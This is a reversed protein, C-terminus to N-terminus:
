SPQKFHTKCKAIWCKQKIYFTTCYTFFTCVPEFSLSCFTSSVCANVFVSVCDQCCIAKIHLKYTVMQHDYSWFGVHHGECHRSEDSGFGQSRDMSWLPSPVEVCVCVHACAYVCVRVCVRMCVCVKLLGIWISDCCFLPPPQSPSDCKLGYWMSWKDHSRQSDLINLPVSNLHEGSKMQQVNKHM